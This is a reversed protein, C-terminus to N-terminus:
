RRAFARAHGESFGIVFMRDDPLRRAAIPEREHAVAVHRPKREVEKGARIPPRHPEVAGAQLSQRRHARARHIVRFVRALEREGTRRRRAGGEVPKESIRLVVDRRLRTLDPDYAQGALLAHVSSMATPAQRPRMTEISVLSGNTTITVAGDDDTRYIAVGRDRLTQLTQAAPHGFLNHRGVSIIAYRPHVAAVFAPTTGYASGHHGVKLVEAHLDDGNALLRAETETGADGMFLMAFSRYELRFVLSNSNIDSRSGTIYPYTPGYFRFTVGDDTRWVDGGRPELVPVHSIHAAALADRYASGAYTQGSDAFANAGLERLVPAAGGVHDGHPHSILIADLHHIGSRILFPVVIREGIAEASSGGSSAGRELRGGADVLYAHGSPTRVLLADAQGVDIATVTLDHSTARPPWLCLTTTCALGFVALAVRKRCALAIAAFLAAVDYAVIAWTPPPTAILRAGPLEGFMRVCAVIWDLLSVDVNTALSAAIPFPTALLATFGVLMSVGVVPVVLANAVPAYPAIVLFTAASLPWTGLQAACAVAFIEAIAHPVGASEFSARLPAAFGLIAAVCSFSLAFSVSSVSAPHIAAIVLAAAAFANWSLAERGAAHAVLAFSLMTAARVAPLHDGSFAAYLWVVLITFLAAAVRGCGIARLLALTLAAVVGLHLGATVLVHVTGTDQFETRLTRDLPGREGWMAGALITADPEPLTAHLRGSAWARARPIWLTADRPDPSESSLITARVIRADLGREAELDRQSPEGPNRPEDFPVREGRLALRAGARPAPDQGELTDCRGDEDRVVATWRGPESSPGSELVTAHFRLVHPDDGSFPVAIRAVADLVGLLVAAPLSLRVAQLARLPICALAAAAVIAALAFGYSGCAVGAVFAGAIAVLEFRGV